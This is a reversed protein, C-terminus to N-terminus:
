RMTVVCQDTIGDSGDEFGAVGALLGLVFRCLGLNGMWSVFNGIVGIVVGIWRCLAGSQGGVFCYEADDRDGGWDM